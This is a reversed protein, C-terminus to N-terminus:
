AVFEIKKQHNFVNVKDRDKEGLGVSELISICSFFM